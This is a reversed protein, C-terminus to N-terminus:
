SLKRRLAQQMKGWSVRPSKPLPRSWWPGGEQEPGALAALLQAFRARSVAPAVFVRRVQRRCLGMRRALEGQNIGLESLRLEVRLWLRDIQCDVTTQTYTVRTPKAYLARRADVLTM